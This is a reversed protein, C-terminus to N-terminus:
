WFLDQHNPSRHETINYRAVDAKQKKLAVVYYINLGIIKIRTQDTFVLFWIKNSQIYLFQKFNCHEIIERWVTKIFKSATNEHKVKEGVGIFYIKPIMWASDRYIWEVTPTIMILGSLKRLGMYRHEISAYRIFSSKWYCANINICFCFIRCLAM